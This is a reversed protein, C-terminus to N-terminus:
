DSILHFRLQSVEQYAGGNVVLRYGCRELGLRRVLSQTVQVVDVFLAIDDLAM